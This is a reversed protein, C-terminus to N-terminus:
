ELREEPRMWLNIQIRARVELPIGATPELAIYTEHKEYNPELGTLDKLYFPDALYFHPYSAFAPAGFSCKSANYVGAKVDPCEEDTEAGCWCAAEEYKEGNDFVRDDGIWRRGKLGHKDFKGDYKLTLSRCFDSVFFTADGPEKTDFPPWLEGTTGKIKACEGRLGSVNAKGNWTKLVGLTNIDNKGTNMEFRGDYDASGNRGYFWAFKDFPILDALYAYEPPLAEKQEDLWQLIGEPFGDFLWEGVTADAVLSSFQDLVLNFGIFPLEETILRGWYSISQFPYLM